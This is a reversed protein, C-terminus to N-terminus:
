VPEKPPKPTRILQGNRDHTTTGWPAPFENFPVINLFGPTEGSVTPLSTPKGLHDKIVDRCVSTPVAREYDRLTERDMQNKANFMRDENTPM